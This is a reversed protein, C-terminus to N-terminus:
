GGAARIMRALGDARPHNAAAARDLWDLAQVPDREVGLGLGLAFGLEVMVGDHGATAALELWRASRALDGADRATDRLIMGLEYAAQRDGGAAGERLMEVVDIEGAVIERLEPTAHHYASLAWTLDGAAVGAVLEAAAARPDYAASDPDGALLHLRRHAMEGGETRVRAAVQEPGPAAGTDFGAMQADSLRLKSLVHGHEMALGVQRWHWSAEAEGRLAHADGLEDVDKTGCNMLSVARNVYDAARDDPLHPLAVMLALFDGRAEIVDAFHAYIAAEPARDAQLRMLLRIAAGEGRNGARTLLDEIEAAIAPDRGNDEILAIALDLATTVGNNLYVRRFFEVAEAREAPSTALEFQLEAFAELAQDSNDLRDAWFRLATPALLGGSQVRQAQDALANPRGALGQTQIRAIAEPDKWRDLAILDTASVTLTGHSTAAHAEAWFAAESLRPAGPAQCRYLGDLRAMSSAMGHRDITELLLAEARGLREPDDRYRVLRGALDQMGQPDDRRTAEELLALIEDEAAWRGERIEVESALRTFVAGPASDIRAIERLYQLYPGDDDSDEGDVRIDLELWPLLASRPSAGVSEGLIAALEEPPILGSAALNDAESESLGRGLGIARRLYHRLEAIDKRDDPATLHHEVVRWAADAGGLDAAFRRWALAVEPNFAVLEGKLYEGAIREARTCIGPTMEGLIGGFAMTVTLDLPATWGEVLRGQRQLQAIELLAGAHGQYAAELILAQAHARDQEVGLGMRYYQALAVRDGNGLAEGQAALAAVMGSDDLAAIRGAAVHLEIRAFTEDIGAFDPDIEARRTILADIFDFHLDADRRQWARIDATLFEIRQPDTLEERGGDVTEDVEPEAAAPRNCLDRPAMEPPLFTLTLPPVPTQAATIAPLTLLTAALLAALPRAM